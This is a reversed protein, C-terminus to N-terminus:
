ANEGKPLFSDLIAYTEYPRDLFCYHGAGKLPCLGCDKILQEMKKGNQIPTATDNEGWILLTPCSIDPLVDTLDTNVVNVLTKRLVPPAANYDASGLRNQMDSLIGACPKKLLPLTLVKKAFKYSKIKIRASLPKKGVIGASGFLILKKPVLINNAAMYLGVRGGHSHGFVIQPTIDLTKTLKIVFDSYDAVTWPTEMTGSKGCGPFDVAIFRLRDCFRAIIGNWVANSSGWGHLMLAVPGTGKDIYNIKIGDIILEM